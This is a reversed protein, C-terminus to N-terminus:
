QGGMFACLIEVWGGRGGIVHNNLLISVCMQPTIDWFTKVAGLHVKLINADGMLEEFYKIGGWKM